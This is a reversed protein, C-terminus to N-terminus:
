DDVGLVLLHEHPWGRYLHKWDFPPKWHWHRYVTPQPEIQEDNNTKAIQTFLRLRSKFFNLVASSNVSM